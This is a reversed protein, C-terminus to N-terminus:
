GARAFTKREDDLFRQGAAQWDEATQFCRARVRRRAREHGARQDIRAIWLSRRLQKRLLHSSQKRLRIRRRFTHFTELESM